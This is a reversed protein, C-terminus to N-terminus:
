TLRGHCRKYKKGSGCPCPENRGVKRDSRVFPEARQAADGSDVATQDSPEAIASRATAHQFNMTQIRDREEMAKIDEDSRPQVRMLISTVDKKVQDLMVGFMEFAERKYEKKPDKQAYGRLHIGQRLYDLAALHEKWLADLQNLMAIKEFQRMTESGIKDVKSEYDADMAATILACFKDEDTGEDQEFIAPLDIDTGYESKLAQALGELEWEEKAMGPPLYEAILEGVVEDRIGAIVDSLDETEMLENRQQYVVTRQDNAVDDYELLSKRMDFNHAEVKRQAKEIQRTLLKSEIAEGEKMGVRTLMNKTRDPDGFIRMLSDEM